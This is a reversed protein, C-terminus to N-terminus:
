CKRELSLHTISMLCVKACLFSFHYHYLLLLLLLSVLLLQKVGTQPFILYLSKSKFLRESSMTVLYWSITQDM